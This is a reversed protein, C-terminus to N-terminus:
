CTRGGGQRKAEYLADDAARLLDEPRQMTADVEAIGISLSGDWCPEGQPGRFADKTALIKGAALAAGARESRPCIVLFEDGGLRCVIDSNRVADNLRTALARLLEDGVAHGHRDNVEKFRDADLLLVSLPVGDRRAETWLEALASLAFRRNPLGTLDDQTSLLRLRSNARELDETRAHVREELERNLARLERNRASVTQFLGSLAQLLPETNSPVSRLEDALADAPARGGAIAHAQRAMSQDIGLIHHALWHVLFEVLNRAHEGDTNEGDPDEGAAAAAAGVHEAFSRHAARHGDLHRPDIGAREMHAEEDAFHVRAYDLVTECAHAFAHPAAGHVSTVLEGLDNILEVLRQHQEDVSPLHTLFSENWDFLSLMTPAAM